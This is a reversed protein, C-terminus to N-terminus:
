NLALTEKLVWGKSTKNQRNKFIIYVFDGKTEYYKGSDLQALFAKRRTNRKPEDHFYAKEEIVVFDGQNINSQIPPNYSISNVKQHAIYSFYAHRGNAEVIAKFKIRRGPILLFDIDRYFNIGQWDTPNEHVVISIPMSDDSNFKLFDFEGGKTILVDCEGKDINSRLVVGEQLETEWYYDGLEDINLLNEKTFEIDHFNEDNAPIPPIASKFHLENAEMWGAEIAKLRDSKFPHTIGANEDSLLSMAQQAQELSAGMKYLIFGSFKDAELEFPINSGLNTLPHNSLHHGIEHALISLSPWYNSNSQDVSNLLMKDFIIIRENEYMFAMANNTNEASFITFNSPLGAYQMILSIQQEQRETPRTLIVSEVYPVRDFGCGIHLNHLQDNEIILKKEYHNSSPNEEFSTENRNSSNKCSIILLFILFKLVCKLQTFLNM